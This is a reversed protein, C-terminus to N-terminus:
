RWGWPVLRIRELRAVASGEMLLRSRENKLDERKFRLVVLGLLERPAGGRPGGISVQKFNKTKKISVRLIPNATVWPHSSAPALLLREEWQDGTPTARQLFITM